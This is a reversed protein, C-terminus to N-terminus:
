IIEDVNVPEGNKNYKIDVLEYKIGYRDLLICTPETYGLEYFGEVEENTFYTEEFYEKREEASWAACYWATMGEQMYQRVKDKLSEDEFRIAFNCENDDIFAITYSM